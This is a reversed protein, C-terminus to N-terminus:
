GGREDIDVRIWNNSVKVYWSPHLTFSYSVEDIYSLYYGIKIDTINDNPIDSQYTLYNILEEGSPLEISETDLVNNLYLLPRVYQYLENNRWQQEIIALNQYNFVPYGDYYLRYKVSNTRKNISELLYDNTWGKHESVSEISRDLLEVVDMQEHTEQIPNIFELQNGDHLVKMGRQGDTFYAEGINPTVLLPNSFLVNIFLDPEITSAVLTSSSMQVTEKPVYVPYSSLNYRVYEIVDEHNLLYNQLANFKELREVTAIAQMRQDISLFSINLSKDENNFTILVREFSWTPLDIEDGFTFLSPLLEGPIATPFVIEVLQNGVVRDTAEILKFDYLVWSSIDQFLEDRKKYNNFGYLAHGDDFVITVPKILENKSLSQGGVDVEHVYNMDQFQDYNPQYTWIAVSLLLSTGILIVLVFTKATEYKM